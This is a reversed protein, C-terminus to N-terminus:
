AVLCRHGDSRVALNVGTQDDVVGDVAHDQSVGGVLGEAQFCGVDFDLAFEGLAQHGGGQELSRRGLVEGIEVGVELAQSFDFGFM